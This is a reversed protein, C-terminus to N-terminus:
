RGAKADEILSAIHEELARASRAPVGARAARVKGDAGIVVMTPLHTVGYRRTIAGKADVIIPLDAGLERLFASLREPPLRENNVTGIWVGPDAAYRARVASLTPLSARCPPCWTAWFDLLVVQGKRAALSFEEGTALRAEVTPAEANLLPGGDSSERAKHIAVATLLGLLVWSTWKQM